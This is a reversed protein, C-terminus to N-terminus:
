EIVPKKHGNAWPNKKNRLNIFSLSSIQIIWFKLTVSKPFHEIRSVGIIIWFVFKHFCVYWLHLIFKWYWLNESVVQFHNNSTIWDTKVHIYKRFNSIKVSLLTITTKVTKILHSKTEFTESKSKSIILTKYNQKRYSLISSILDSWFLM